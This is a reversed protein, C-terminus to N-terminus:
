KNGVPLFIHWLPFVFGWFSFLLIQQSRTKVKRSNWSWWPFLQFVSFWMKWFYLHCFNGELHWHLASNWFGERNRFNRFHSLSLKVTGPYPILQLTNYMNYMWVHSSRGKSSTHTCQMQLQVVVASVSNPFSYLDANLGRLYTHM